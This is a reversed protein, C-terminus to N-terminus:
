YEGTAPDAPATGTASIDPAADAPTAAYPNLVSELAGPNNRLLTELAEGADPFLVPLNGTATWADEATYFGTGSRLTTTFFVDGPLAKKRAASVARGGRVDKVIVGPSVPTRGLTQGPLTVLSLGRGNPVAALFYYRTKMYSKIAIM